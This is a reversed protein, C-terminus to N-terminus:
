AIILNTLQQTGFVNTEFQQRLTDRSLDEVAGPQGYAANNFLADIHGNFYDLCTVVAQQIANNILQTSKPKKLIFWWIILGVLCFGILNVTLTIM